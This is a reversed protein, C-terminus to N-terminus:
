LDVIEMNQLSMSLLKELEKTQCLLTIPPFTWFNANLEPLKQCINNRAFIKSVIEIALM